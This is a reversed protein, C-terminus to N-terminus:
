EKGERKKSSKRRKGKVWSPNPASQMAKPVPLNTGYAKGAQLSAMKRKKSRKMPRTPYTGNLGGQLRGTMSTPKQQAQIQPAQPRAQAQAPLPAIPVAALRKKNSSKRKRSRKMAMMQSGTLPSAKRKMHKSKKAKGGHYNAQGPAAHAARAMMGILGGPVGRAKLQAARGGHGLANSKGGFSGSHKVTGVKFGKHKLHKM